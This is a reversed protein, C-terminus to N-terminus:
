GAEEEPELEALRREIEVRARRSAANNRGMTYYLRLAEMAITLCEDRVRNEYLARALMRQSAEYRRNMLDIKNGLLPVYDHVAHNAGLGVRECTESLQRMVIATEEDIM